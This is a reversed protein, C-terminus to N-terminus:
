SGFVGPEPNRFRFVEELILLLRRKVNHRGSHTMGQPCNSGWSLEVFVFLLTEGVYILNNKVRELGRKLREILSLLPSVLYIKLLIKVFKM